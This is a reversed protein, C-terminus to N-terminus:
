AKVERFTRVTSERVVYGKRTSTKWSVAADADTLVARTADGMAAQFEAVLADRRAEAAAVAEKAARWDALRQAWEPGALTIERGSDQPYILRLAERTASSGDVMPPEDKQVLRWFKFSEELLLDRLDDNIPVEYDLYDEGLGFVAAIYGYDWAGVIAQHTLQVIAYASPETDSWDKRANQSVTKLEAPALPHGHEPDMVLRDFTAALHDHENSTAIAFDGPDFLALDRHAALQAAIEPEALHGFRLRMPVAADTDLPLKGTKECWLKYPSSWPALGLLVPADSAHLHRRRAELWPLREHHDTLTFAANGPVM